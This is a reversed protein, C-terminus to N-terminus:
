GKWWERDIKADGFRELGNTEGEKCLEHIHYTPRSKARLSPDDCGETQEGQVAKAQAPLGGSSQNRCQEGFQDVDEHFIHDLAWSGRGGQHSHHSSGITVAKGTPM